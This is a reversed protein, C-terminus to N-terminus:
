TPHLPQHETFTRSRRHLFSFLSVSPISLNISHLRRALSLTLQIEIRHLSSVSLPLQHRVVEGRELPSNVLHYKDVGTLAASITEWFRIQGTTGIILVGPERASTGYDVFCALPVPAHVAMALDGTPAPPCPFRFCTPAAIRRAFSWVYVFDRSIIQAYGTRVDLQCKYVQSYHDAANLLQQVEAPLSAFLSVQYNEDKVYTRTYDEQAAAQGAQSPANSPAASGARFDKVPTRARLNPTPPPSLANGLRRRSPGVPTGQRSANSFM